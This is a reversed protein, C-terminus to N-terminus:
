GTCDGTRKGTFTGSMRMSGQGQMTGDMQMEGNLSRKDDAVTVSMSGQMTMGNQDCNMDLSISNDTERLNSYTCGDQGLTSPDFVADEPSVCESSSQAQAPMDMTQGNMNLSVSANMTNEWQGPEISLQALAPTALLAATAAILSLRKM